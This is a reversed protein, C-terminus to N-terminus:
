CASPVAFPVTSHISSCTLNPLTSGFLRSLAPARARVCCKLVGVRRPRVGPCHRERVGTGVHGSRVAESPGRADLRVAAGWSEREAAPLPRQADTRGSPRARAPAPSAPSGPRPELRGRRGPREPSPGPRPATAPLWAPVRPPTPSRPLARGVGPPVAPRFLPAPAQRAAQSRRVAPRGVVPEIGAWAWGAHGAPGHPGLGPAPGFIVDLLHHRGDLLDPSPSRQGQAPSVASGGGGFTEAREQGAAGAWWSPESDVPSGGGGKGPLEWLDVFRPGSHHKGLAPARTKAGGGSAKVSKCARGRTKMAPTGPWAKAAGQRTGWTDASGSSWTVGTLAGPNAPSTRSRHGTLSVAGIGLVDKMRGSRWGQPPEDKPGGSGTEQGGVPLLPPHSHTVSGKSDELPHRHHIGLLLHALGVGLLGQM